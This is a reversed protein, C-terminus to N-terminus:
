FEIIYKRMIENHNNKPHYIEKTDNLPLFGNKIFISKSALNKEFIWAIAKKAMFENKLVIILQKLALNGYGRNQYNESIAISVEFSEKSLIDIYAYGIRNQSFIIYIVRDLSLINNKYWKKLVNYDPKNEHGTWYINSEESKIDFYFDYDDTTAKRFEISIDMYIVNNSCQWRYSKM